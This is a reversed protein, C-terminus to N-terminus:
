GSQPNCSVQFAITCTAVCRRRGSRGFVPWVGCNTRILSSRIVTTPNARLLSSLCSTNVVVPMREKHSVMFVGLNLVLCRGTCRGWGCGRVRVSTLNLKHRRWVFHGSPCIEIIHVLTRLGPVIHLVPQRGLRIKDRLTIEGPNVAIMIPCLLLRGPDARPKDWSLTLGSLWKLLVLLKDM